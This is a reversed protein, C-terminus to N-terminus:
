ESVRERVWEQMNRTDIQKLNFAHLLGIFSPSRRFTHKKLAPAAISWLRFTDFLGQLNYTLGNLVFIYQTM